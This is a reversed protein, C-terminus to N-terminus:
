LISLLRTTRGAGKATVDDVMIPEFLEKGDPAVAWNGADRYLKGVIRKLGREIVETVMGHYVMEGGRHGRKMVHASVTDTPMADLQNGPAIFLDGYSNPALPIVFGFGKRNARYTGTVVSPIKPLDILRKGAIVIQGQQRLQEIADEFEAVDGSSVGLLQALTASRVPSYDRRALYKLIQKKHVEIM